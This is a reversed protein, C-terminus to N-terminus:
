KVPEPAKQEKKKPDKKAPEEAPPANKKMGMLRAKVDNYKPAM